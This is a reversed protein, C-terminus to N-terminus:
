GEVLGYVEGVLALHDRPASAEIEALYTVFADKNRHSFVQTGYSIRESIPNEALLMHCERDVFVADCYPLLTSIMRIDNTMGRSVRKQGARARRALAAYLLSSIKNFPVNVLSDSRLYEAAREALRERPVGAAHLARQVTVFTVAASDNILQYTATAPMAAMTAARAAVLELVIPGYSRAEKQFRDDFPVDEAAWRAWVGALGKDEVARTRNLENVLNDPVPLRAEILLRPQWGQRDGEIVRDVDLPPEENGRGQEWQQAHTYLQGNRIITYDHFDIEASLLRGISRLSEYGSWVLGEEEHFTSRPCSVLQLRVLRFLQELVSKWFREEDTKPAAQGQAKALSSLAMQDLYILRRDVPPLAISETSRCQHCRRVYNRRNVMLVGFAEPASCKPCDTYPPSLFPDQKKEQIDVGDNEGMWALTREPLSM